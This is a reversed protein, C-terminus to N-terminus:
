TRKNMSQGIDIFFSQARVMIFSSSTGAAGQEYEDGSETSGATGKTMGSRAKEAAEEPNLSEKGRDVIKESMERKVATPEHEKIKSPTMPEKNEYSTLSDDEREVQTGAAGEEYERDEDTSTAKDKVGQVKEKIKKAIGENNNSVRHIKHINLTCTMFTTLMEFRGENVEIKM